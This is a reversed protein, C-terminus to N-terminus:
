DDEEIEKGYEVLDFLDDPPIQLLKPLAGTLYRNEIPEADPSSWRTILEGVAEGSRSGLFIAAYSAFEIDDMGLLAQRSEILKIIRLNGTHPAPEKLEREALAAQSLRELIIRLGKLTEALPLTHCLEIFGQSNLAKPAEDEGRLYAHLTGQSVGRAAAIASLFPTSMGAPDKIGGRLYSQISSPNLQLTEALERASQLDNLHAIQELIIVLRQQSPSLRKFDSKSLTSISARPAQNITAELNNPQTDIQIEKIENM